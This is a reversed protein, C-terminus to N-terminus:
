VGYSRNFRDLAANGDAAPVRGHMVFVGITVPMAKKHILNDFVTPEQWQVGDQNVYLCAPKDPTCQAPAYVWYDRCTGPFIKSRDFGLKLLEGKPVGPQPQSDPGLRDEDTTQTSASSATFISLGLFLFVRWLKM